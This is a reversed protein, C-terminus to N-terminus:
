FVAVVSCNCKRKKFYILLSTSVVVVSVIGAVMLLVVPFSPSEDESASTTPVPEFGGGDDVVDPAGIGKVPNVLPSKDIFSFVYGATDYNYPTDWVGTSGIQKANPYLTTYDSYYNRDIVFWSLDTLGLTCNFFNNESIVDRSMFQWVAAISDNFVNHKIVNGVGDGHSVHIGGGEFTNNFFSNGNSVAYLRSGDCFRVNKVVVDRSVGLYIGNAWMGTAWGKLAYGAGDITIGDKDVGIIESINGTFTYVDGQRLIRDTGVVSGDQTIFITAQPGHDDALSNSCSMVVISCSLLMLCFLVVGFRKVHGINSKILSCVIGQRLSSNLTFVKDLWELFCLM